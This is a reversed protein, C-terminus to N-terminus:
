SVVIIFTYTSSSLAEFYVFCFNVSNFHSDSWQLIVSLM